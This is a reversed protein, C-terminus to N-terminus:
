HVRRSFTIQKTERTAEVKVQKAHEAIARKVAEANSSIGYHAKIVRLAGDLDDGLSVSVRTRFQKM